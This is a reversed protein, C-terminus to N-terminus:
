PDITAPERAKRPYVKPEVLEHAKARRDCEELEAISWLPLRKGFYHPRPLRGDKSMLDITREDLGYRAIVAAKRLFKAEPTTTM